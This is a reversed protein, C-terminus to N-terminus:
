CSPPPNLKVSRRVLIASRSDRSLSAAPAQQLALSRLLSGHSPSPNISCPAPQERRQHERTADELWRRSRGVNDCERRAIADRQRRQNLARRLLDELIRAGDDHEIPQATGDRWAMCRARVPHPAPITSTSRSNSCAERGRRTSAEIALFPRPTEALVGAPLCDQRAQRLPWRTIWM